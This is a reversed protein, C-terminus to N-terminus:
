LEDLLQSSDLSKISSESSIIWGMVTFAALTGYGKDTFFVNGGHIIFFCLQERAM